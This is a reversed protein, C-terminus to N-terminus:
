TYPLFFTPLHKFVKSWNSIYHFIWTLLFLRCAYLTQNKIQRKLNDDIVRDQTIVAGIKRKRTKKESTGTCHCNTSNNKFLLVWINCVTHCVYDILFLNVHSYDFSSYWPELFSPVNLIYVICNNQNKPCMWHKCKIFESIAKTSTDEPVWTWGYIISM